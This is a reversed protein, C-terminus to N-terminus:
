SLGEIYPPSTRDDSREPVYSGNDLARVEGVHKAVVLHILHERERAARTLEANLIFGYVISTSLATLVLGVVLVIVM